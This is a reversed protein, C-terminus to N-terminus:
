TYKTAKLGSNKKVKIRQNRPPQQITYANKPHTPNIPQEQRHIKHCKNKSFYIIKKTITQKQPNLSISQQSVFNSTAPFMILNKPNYEPSSRSHEKLENFLFNNRRVENQRKKSMKSSMKLQERVFNTDIINTRNDKQAIKRKVPKEESGNSKEDVFIPYVPLM